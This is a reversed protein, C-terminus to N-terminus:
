FAEWICNGDEISYAEFFQTAAPDAEGFVVPRDSMSVIVQAPVPGAEAIRPLAYTQCLALMDWVATEFPVTGGERAIAPAVFRFRITLGDAGPENWVVDQLTVTQGSPVPIVQDAGPETRTQGAQTAIIAGLTM